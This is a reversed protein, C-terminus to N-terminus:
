RVKNSSNSPTTGVLTAEMGATPPTGTREHVRSSLPFSGMWPWLLGAVVPAAGLAVFLRNM